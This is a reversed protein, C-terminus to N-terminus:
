LAIDPHESRVLSQLDRITAGRAPFDVVCLHHGDAELLAAATTLTVPPWQTAWVGAEQTCRGERTFGRGDPAPPNFLFVRAM